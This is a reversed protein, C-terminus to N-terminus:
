KKSDRYEELLSLISHYIKKEGQTLQNRKTLDEKDKKNNYGFDKNSNNSNKRKPRDDDDLVEEDVSNEKVKSMGFSTELFIFINQGLKNVLNINPMYKLLCKVINEKLDLAAFFLASNGTEEEQENIDLGNNLLFDVVGHEEQKTVAFMLLSLNQGIKTIKSCQGTEFLNRLDKVENERIAKEIKNEQPSFSNDPNNKNSVDPKFNEMVVKKQNFTQSRNKNQSTCSCSGM